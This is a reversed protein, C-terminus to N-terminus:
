LVALGDAGPDRGDHLARMIEATTLPFAERLLPLWERIVGRNHKSGRAILVIREVASDRQKSHMARLLAQADGLRTEAEVGISVPGNLLLDWARGDGDIPIPAELTRRWVPSLREGFENLLRLHAADRVPSGFPYLKLSLDQGLAASVISASLLNVAQTRGRELDAYTSRAMGAARALTAQTLGAALRLDRWSALLESRTRTARWQGRTRPDDRSGM